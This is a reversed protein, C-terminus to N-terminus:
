SYGGRGAAVLSLFPKSKFLGTYFSDPNGEYGPVSFPEFRFCMQGPPQNGKLVGQPEQCMPCKNCAALAKQLCGSCFVHKCRLTKPNTLTDLCIPCDESFFFCLCPTLIEFYDCYTYFFFPHSILCKRCSM